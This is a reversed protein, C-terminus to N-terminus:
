SKRTKDRDILHFHFRTPSKSKFLLQYYLNTNPLPINFRQYCSHNKLTIDWKGHSMDDENTAYEELSSARDMHIENYDKVSGGWSDRNFGRLGLTNNM